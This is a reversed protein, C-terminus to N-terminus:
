KVVGGKTTSRLIDIDMDMDMCEGRVVREPEAESGTARESSRAGTRREDDDTM